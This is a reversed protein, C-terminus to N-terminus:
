KWANRVARNILRRLDAPQVGLPALLVWADTVVSLIKKEDVSWGTDKGQAESILRRIDAPEVGLPALLSWAKMVVPLLRHDELSWATRKEQVESVLKELDTRKIFLQELRKTAESILVHEDIKPLELDTPSEACTQSFRNAYLRGSEVHLRVPDGEPILKALKNVFSANVFIAKPWTGLAPAEATTDAVRITLADSGFRFEAHVTQKRIARSVNKLAVALDARSVKLTHPAELPSTM